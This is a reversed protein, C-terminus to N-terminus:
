FVLMKQTSYKVTGNMDESKVADIVHNITYAPINWIHAPVMMAHDLYWIRMYRSPKLSFIKWPQRCNLGSVELAATCQM